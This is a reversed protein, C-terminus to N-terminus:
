IPRLPKVFIKMEVLGQMVLFLASVDRGAGRVVQEITTNRDAAGNEAFHIWGDQYISTTKSQTDLNM